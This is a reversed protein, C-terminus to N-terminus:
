KTNKNFLVTIFLYNSTKYLRNLLKAKIELITPLLPATKLLPTVRDSTQKLFLARPKSHRLLDPINITGERQHFVGLGTNEKM